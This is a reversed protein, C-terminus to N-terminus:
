YVHNISSLLKIGFKDFGEEPFQGDIKKLYLHGCDISWKDIWDEDKTGDHIVSRILDSKYISLINKAQSILPCKNDSSFDFGAIKIARIEGYSINFCTSEGVKSNMIGAMASIELLADLDVDIHLYKKFLRILEYHTAEHNIVTQTPMGLFAVLILLYNKLIKTSELMFNIKPKTPEWAKKKTVRM